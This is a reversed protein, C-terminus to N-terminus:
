ASCNLAIYALECIKKFDDRNVLVVHQDEIEFHPHVDDPKGILCLNGGRIELNNPPSEHLKFPRFLSCPESKM